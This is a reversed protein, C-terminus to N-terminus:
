GASQMKLYNEMLHDSKCLYHKKLYGKVFYNVFSPTNELPSDRYKVEPSHQHFLKFLPCNTESSKWFENVTQQWNQCIPYALALSGWSLVFSICDPWQHTGPVLDKSDEAYNCQSLLQIHDLVIYTAKKHEHNLCDLSGGTASTLNERRDVMNKSYTKFSWRPLPLKLEWNYLKNFGGHHTWHLPPWLPSEFRHWRYNM